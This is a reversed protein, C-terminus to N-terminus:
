SSRRRRSKTQSRANWPSECCFPLLFPRLPQLPFLPLSLCRLPLFSSFSVSVLRPLLPLRASSSLWSSPPSLLSLLLHFLIDTPPASHSHPPPSSYCCLVSCFCFLAPTPSCCFCRYVPLALPAACPLAPLLAAGETREYGDEEISSPAPSSSAFLTVHEGQTRNAPLSDDAPLLAPDTPSTNFRRRRVLGPGITTGNSHGNTKGNVGNSKEGNM